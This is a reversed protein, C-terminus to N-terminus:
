EESEDHVKSIGHGKLAGAMIEKVRHPDPTGWDALDRENQARIREVYEATTESQGTTMKVQGVDADLWDTWSSMFTSFYPLYAPNTGIGNHHKSFKKLALKLNDYDQQTRIMKRCKKLGETKGSKRPYLRYISEFDLDAPSPSLAAPQEHPEDIMRQVLTQLQCLRSMIESLDKMM